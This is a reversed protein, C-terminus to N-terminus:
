ILNHFTLKYLTGQSAGLCEGEGICRVPAFTFFALEQILGNDIRITVPNNFAPQLLLHVNTIFTLGCFQPYHDVSILKVLQTTKACFVKIGGYCVCVVLKGSPSFCAPHYADSTVDSTLEVHETPTLSHWLLALGGGVTMLKGELSATCYVNPNDPFKYLPTEQKGSDVDLVHVSGDRCGVVLNENRILCSSDIESCLELVFNRQLQLTQVDRLELVLPWNAAENKELKHLQYYVILHKDNPYIKTRPGYCCDLVGVGVATSAPQQDSELSLKLISYRCESDRSTYAKVCTVVTHENCSLNEFLIKREGTELKSELTHMAHKEVWACDKNKSSSLPGVAKKKIESSAPCNAADELFFNSTVVYFRKSRMMDLPHELDQFLPDTSFEKRISELENCFNDTASWSIKVCGDKTKKGRVATMASMLERDQVCEALQKKYGGSKLMHHFGFMLSYKESDSFEPPFNKSYKVERLVKLCQRALVCNGDQLKVIFDHGEDEDEILWDTLSKHFVYIRKKEVPFLLALSKLAKRAQKKEQRTTQSLGLIQLVLSEPLPARSAVVAELFNMFLEEDVGLETQLRALYEEYVSSIGKPFIQSMEAFSLGRSKASDVAFNAILFSGESRATLNSVVAERHEYSEDPFMKGLHNTFFVTIDETNNTDTTAIDLVMVHSLETPLRKNPRSTCLLKIWKPMSPWKSLLVKVFEDRMNPDCEDLADIVIVFYNVPLNKMSNLPDRLLVANLTELNMEDLKKRLGPLLSTLRIDLKDKFGDVNECLHRAISEIIVRPNNCQSNNHQIFHCAGLTGKEQLEECIVSALVSKGVGPLATIVLAKSSGKSDSCFAEIKNM